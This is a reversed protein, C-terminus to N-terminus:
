WNTLHAGFRSDKRVRGQGLCGSYWCIRAAEGEFYVQGSRVVELSMKSKLVGGDEKLIIAKIKRERAKYEVRQAM